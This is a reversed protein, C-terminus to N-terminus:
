EQQCAGANLISTEVIRIRFADVGSQFIDQITDLEWPYLSRGAPTTLASAQIAAWELAPSTVSVPKENRKRLVDANVNSLRPDVIRGRPPDAM